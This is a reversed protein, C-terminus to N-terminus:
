RSRSRPWWARRAGAVRRVTAFLTGVAAVTCLAQPLLISFCSFGFVRASLGMLWLSLPPKDVTIFSGPDIAGFFWAKWSEAGARAAAAYYENSYGSITLNWLCLAAALVLVGFLRARGLPGRAPRSAPLAIATMLPEGPRALRSDFPERSFVWTRLAVYRTVTATLTAAVLVRSSWAARRPPTSGTCSPLAGNTLALTLVFVLAGRVHHRALEERGRVGFTFRRNAATNAVATIALAVANAALAGLAPAVCTSCRTPSRASCASAWSRAVPGRRAAARRGLDTM